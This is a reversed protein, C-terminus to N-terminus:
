PAPPEDEGFPNLYRLDECCPCHAFVAGHGDEQLKDTGEVLFLAGCRNCKHRGFPSRRVKSPQKLITM